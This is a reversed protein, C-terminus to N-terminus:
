GEGRAQRDKIWQSSVQEFRAREANLDLGYGSLRVDDPCDRLMRGASQCLYMAREMAKEAQELQSTLRALEDLLDPRRYEDGSQAYRSRIEELADLNKQSNKGYEMEDDIRLLTRVDDRAREANYAWRNMLHWQEDREAKLKEVLDFVTAIAHFDSEDTGGLNRCVEYAKDLAERATTIPDPTDTM